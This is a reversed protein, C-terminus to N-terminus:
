NSSSISGRGISLDGKRQGDGRADEAAKKQEREMRQRHAEDRRQKNEVKDAEVAQRAERIARDRDAKLEAERAHREAVLKARELEKAAQAKEAMQALYNKREQPKMPKPARAAAEKAREIAEKEKAQLYAKISTDSDKALNSNCSAGLGTTGLGLSASFIPSPAGLDSNLSDGLYNLLSVSM